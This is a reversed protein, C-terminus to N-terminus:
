CEIHIYHLITDITIFSRWEVTTAEYKPVLHGGSPLLLGLQHKPRSSLLAVFRLGHVRPRHDRREGGVMGAVLQVLQPGASQNPVFTSSGDWSIFVKSFHPCICNRSINRPNGPHIPFEHAQFHQSFALSLASSLFPPKIYNLALGEKGPWTNHSVSLALLTRTHILQVNDLLFPIAFGLTLYPLTRICCQRAAPQALKKQTKSSAWLRPGVNAGNQCQDKSLVHCAVCRLM